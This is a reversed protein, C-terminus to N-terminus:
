AKAQKGESKSTKIEVEHQKKVEETHERLGKMEKVLNQIHETVSYQDDDKAV